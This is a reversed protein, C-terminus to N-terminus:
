ECTFDLCISGNVNLYGALERFNPPAQCQDSVDTRVDSTEHLAYRVMATKRVHDVFPLKNWVDIWKMRVAAANARRVVSTSWLANIISLRM